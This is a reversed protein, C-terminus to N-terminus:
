ARMAIKADAKHADTLSLYSPQWSSRYDDNDQVKKLESMVNRMDARMAELIHMQPFPKHLEELAIQYEEHDKELQKAADERHREFNAMANDLKTFLGSASFNADKNYHLSDATHSGEGNLSFTIGNRTAYVEIEFGRYTGVKFSDKAGSHEIALKMKELITELLQQSTKETHTKGSVDVFAFKAASHKDRREIEANWVTMQHKARDDAGKLWSARSQLNHKSRNFNAYVAEMKRLDSSLKVQMFILPNGTAAAKMEAANAAESSVDDIVRGLSGGRRFQEIGSAKYEITQWMRSDYTRETAYRYIEVEFNDPDALYLKNGQREIRGERQELDSPRWPVDLHHLAVLRQQVNTGAGMKATSGLLIRSTGANMESFLKEKQLGTSAEHIFRIEKEPIGMGVLKHKIDDYVSFRSNGGSTALLEDMSVSVEDDCEDDKSDNQESESVLVNKATQQKGPTSLDCFVLQTGKVGKTKEWIDFIKRVAVNIKSGDFDQANPEILRYDLGAKRADNTIKLANDIRPDDPRNEMRHIISGVNWEKVTSGDIRRIPNGQDDFVERQVGMYTAQDNSRPAVINQPKGGKIRPIPFRLGQGEAQAILDRKTVVDAFTRYMASLEPVNQFKAFRSNLKYNVGTSDLEWATVVQGFTSAWSDFHHIGLSKLHDYQMYRQMTYTEAITNSIPTGTLGSFGKGGYKNQLYRVKVFLDFAKDSGSVNGLGSVSLSTNIFLNKFEHLEDVILSDVGLEDFTVVKDKAGTDAKQKMRAEMREKAREMEKLTIKDGQAQKHEIIAESLDKIQEQLINELMDPPMGIKKFSSHPVIVADWDGTAIKACLKQRNAKEFDRKEAVLINAQPYLSYFDDKWQLLIHNPVAVMTKKTLGIRKSEMIAAVTALTKGAGVTHDLLMGGEQIYRWVANKQHPRLKIAQSAGPLELHSGDYVAPVSTNFKDNYLRALKERRDQDTWIWDVFAQKIEDAKQGAVLTEEQNIKYIPKGNHDEGVRDRVKIPTNALTAAILDIAPYRETGWKATNATRDVGSITSHWRGLAKSYYINARINDGFLHKTFAEVTEGPVWASGLQVAIDIAEIDAPQVLKLAAVNEAYRSDQEAAALATDLKNKVEGTLYQDAIEWNQTAPNKFIRGKLDAIIEDHTKSGALLDVMYPMNIKGHENMSVVLADKATEVHTVAKRPTLVRVSFIAAKKASPARPPVGHKKALEVSVGKDYDVELAQLLPYDPDDRMALRNSQSCLHGFKRTFSDYAANLAMRSRLLDSETASGSLEDRMLTRLRDRIGIMGRIRQNEKENKPTLYAYSHKDLIDPLRKALRGNPAVFFAYTKLTKPLTLVPLDIKSLSGDDLRPHYAHEPLVQIARELEERLDQGPIPVLDSSERFMNQTVAMKGLMQEPKAEYYASLRYEQGSEDVKSVTSIWDRNAEAAAATKRLFIIDTTVDTLANKRFANNPLRIAGLLEARDAIYERVSPDEADLFYRSVVFAAIGGERLKDLSKAAFFNHISMKLDPHNTDYVKQNGFPPNGLWVDYIGTPINVEQYPRAIVTASPYLHKTIEASIPDREIATIATKERMDDPLLGIFNGIGAAPELIEGGDFGLRRLGQYIGEIVTQSTYHSDQTSRRAQQFEEVSMLASLEKYEERWNENNPDFAQSLGGWGVYHLLIAQESKYAPRQEKRLTQLLRIAEINNKYKTRAGGDGLRDADTIRYDDAVISLSPASAVVRDTNGGDPYDRAGGGRKTDLRSVGRYDEAGTGASGITKGVASDRGGGGVAEVQGSQQVGLPRSDPSWIPQILALTSAADNQREIDSPRNIGARQEQHTGAHQQKEQGKEDDAQIDLKLQDVTEVTEDFFFDFSFQADNTIKRRAM